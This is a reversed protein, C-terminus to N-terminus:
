KAKKFKVSSGFIGANLLQDFENQDPSLIVLETMESNITKTKEVNDFVTTEFEYDFYSIQLDNRNLVLKIPYYVDNERINIYYENSRATSRSLTNNSGPGIIQDKNRIGFYYREGDLVCPISDNEVVGHIFGNRVDFKASERISERSMSSISTSIIFIGVANIEYIRGNSSTYTGFYKEDVSQLSGMNNAVPDSFYYSKQGIGYQSLFLIAILGFIKM